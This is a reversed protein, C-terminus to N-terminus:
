VIREREFTERMPPNVYRRRKEKRYEDFFVESHEGVKPLPVGHHNAYWRALSRVYDPTLKIPLM